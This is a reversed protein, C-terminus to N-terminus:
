LGLASLAAGVLSELGLLALIALLTLAMDRLVHRTNPRTM